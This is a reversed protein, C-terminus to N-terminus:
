RQGAQNTAAVAAGRWQAYAAFIERAIGTAETGGHGRELFVLVVIEPKEAPAYGAFWAHTWAGEDAPATGTKGAVQMASEPQAAHGMGYAVSQQLGEFLPELKADHASALQAIRAYARALELPTVKIGWEGIAQLQLQQPSQPLAVEGAAEDTALTTASTFGDNVFSDHLQAPTLRLAVTTFYSNCSYALAAAADLPQKVDPHTCDLRHGAITVSRKCMLATQGDLKGSELLAMLTFPKISSGPYVVRRAAVELRYSAIIRESNVRLVVATGSQGKMARSATKQLVSSSTQGAASVGALLCVVVLWRCARNLLMARNYYCPAFPSSGVAVPSDMNTSFALAAAFDADGGAM